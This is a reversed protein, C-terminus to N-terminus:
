RPLGNRKKQLEEQLKREEEYMEPTPLSAPETSNDKPITLKNVLSILYVGKQGIEDIVYTASNFRLIGSLEHNNDIAMSLHVRGTSDIAYYGTYTPKRDLMIRALEVVTGDPLDITASTEEIAAINFRFVKYSASRNKITIARIKAVSSDSLGKSSEVLEFIKGSKAYAPLTLWGSALFLFLGWVFTNHLCNGSIAALKKVNEKIM